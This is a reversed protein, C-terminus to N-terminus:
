DFTRCVLGGDALIHSGTIYAGADSSLLLVPGVMEDVNGWRKVATRDAFKKKQEDSLLNRTLDTLIPGPALCNVTIGHPGLELAQARAMAVLAAKTASYLGRGPNSAFALVSSTYVIRGWNREIMGPVVEKALWMCSSFNLELIEDWVEETTDVLKQPRNHGANNFLIDVKGMEKTAFAALERVSKRDTMDGVFYRVKAPLGDGIELVAQQLEKENRAAIVVNAGVEAYGRAVAKGIGKSGGTVLAVRNSLDFLRHIM